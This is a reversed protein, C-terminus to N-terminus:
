VAFMKARNDGRLANSISDPVDLVTGYVAMVRLGGLFARPTEATALPRAIQEFLQSMVPPSVRQRAESISASNPVRWYKGLKTWQRSLGNVWNKLVSAMSDNSWLSMATVLCVVLESPLM